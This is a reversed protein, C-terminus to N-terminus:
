LSYNQREKSIQRSSLPILERNSVYTVGERKSVYDLIEELHHWGNREEIEWSHGWLHWIGGNQLVSDFLKKGLEVWDGLRTMQALFTQLGEMKQARAVNKVYSFRPNPAAQVTTPMEFPDFDSRTALMRVTRAGGYGAQKLFRVTNADYRGRPYCFMRVESGLIDELAPKCPDIEAALEPPSLKWLFKHSLGHAGIEFGGSSLERLEAPRLPPRGLYPTIPIYFTGRMGRSHLIEALRLDLRDGDDWSTTVIRPQEM